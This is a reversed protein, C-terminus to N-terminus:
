SIEGPSAPTFRADGLIWDRSRLRWTARAYDLESHPWQTVIRGSSSRYYSDCRTWVSRELEANIQENFRLEAEPRVDVYGGRRALKSVASAVLRAGAELIYIISNAGQNTNPGYLMFFNPFGNVATGLFAQPDSGWREHLSEGGVGIVELGSLYHSTEFGTALVIVDVDV